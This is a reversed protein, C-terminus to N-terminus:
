LDAVSLPWPWGFLRPLWLNFQCREQVKKNTKQKQCIIKILKQKSFNSVAATACNTQANVKCARLTPHKFGLLSLGLDKFCTTVAGHAPFHKAFPALTVPGQLHGNYWLLHPVSFFVWQEIAMLASCLDFNAARWQYHHRRWILWFKLCVFLSSNSYGKKWSFNLKCIFQEKKTVIKIM